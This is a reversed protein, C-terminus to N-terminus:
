SICRYRNSSGHLRDMTSNRSPTALHTLYEYSYICSIDSIYIIYIIIIYIYIYIYIRIDNSKFFAYPWAVDIIAKSPAGAVIITSSLAIMAKSSIGVRQGLWWITFKRQHVASFFPLGTPLNEVLINKQRNYSIANIRESSADFVQYQM